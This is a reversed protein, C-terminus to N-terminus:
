KKFARKIKWFPYGFTWVGAYYIRPIINYGKSHKKMVEYFVADAWKIVKWVSCEWAEAIERAFQYIPDHFVAAKVACYIDPVGTAGDFAYGNKVSIMGRKSISIWRNEFHKGNGPRKIKTIHHEGGVVLYHWRM